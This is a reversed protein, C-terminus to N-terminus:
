YSVVTFYLSSPLSGCSFSGLFSHIYTYAYCISKATCWFSLCCLLHVIGGIFSLIFIFSHGSHALAPAWPVLTRGSCACWVQVKSRLVRFTFFLFEKRFSLENSTNILHLNSFFYVNVGINMPYPFLIKLFHIYTYCRWKAMCRFSVCQLDVM